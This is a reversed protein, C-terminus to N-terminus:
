ALPYTKVVDGKATALRVPPDWNSIQYRFFKKNERLLTVQTLGEYNSIGQEINSIGEKDAMWRGDEAMRRSAM